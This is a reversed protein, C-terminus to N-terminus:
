LLREPVYVQDGPRLHMDDSLEGDKSRPKLNVIFVESDGEGARRTVRIKRMQASTDFGGSSKVAMSLTMDRSPPMIIRGPNKVRGLVTVYGWPSTASDNEDVVYRIMVQPFRFFERYAVTLRAVLETRTMGNVQMSGLMPLNIEGKPSIRRNVADVEANDLVLVEVSLVLGPRLVPDPAINEAGGGAVGNDPLGPEADIAPMELLREVEAGPASMVAGRAGVPPTEPEDRDALDPAVRDLAAGRGASKPVKGWHDVGVDLGADALRRHLRKVEAALERERSRGAALTDRRDKRQHGRDMVLQDRKQSAQELSVTLKEVQRKLNAIEGRAAELWQRKESLEEEAHRLARRATGARRNDGRDADDTTAHRFDAFRREIEAYEDRLDDFKDKQKRWAHELSRSRDGQERVEDELDKIRNKLRSERRDPKPPERDPEADVVRERASRRRSPRRIEARLARRELDVLHEFLEEVGNAVGQELSERHGQQAPTEELGPGAARVIEAGFCGFLLFPTVLTLRRWGRTTRPRTGGRTLPFNKMKMIHDPGAPRRGRRNAGPV